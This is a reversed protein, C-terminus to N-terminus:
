ADAYRRGESALPVKVRRTLASSLARKAYEAKSHKLIPIEPDPNKWLTLFDKYAALALVRDADAGALTEVAFRQYSGSGSVGVSGELLELRHRQPGNQSFVLAM